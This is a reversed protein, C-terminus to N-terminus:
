GNDKRTINGVEYIYILKINFLYGAYVSFILGSSLMFLPFLMSHRIINPRNKFHPTLYDSVIDCLTLKSAAFRELPM